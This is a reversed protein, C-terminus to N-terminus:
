EPAVKVCFARCNGSGEQRSEYGSMLYGKPCTTNAVKACGSDSSAGISIETGNSALALNSFRAETTNIQTQFDSTLSNIDKVAVTTAQDISKIYEQTLYTYLSKSCTFNNASFELTEDNGCTPITACEFIQDDFNVNKLYQNPACQNKVVNNGFWGECLGGPGPQFIRSKPHNWDYRITTTSNSRASDIRYNDPKGLSNEAFRLFQSHIANSPVAFLYNLKVARVDLGRNPGDSCYARVLVGSKNGFSSGYHSVIEAGELSYLSIYRPNGSCPDGQLMGRFTMGCDVADILHKGLLSFDSDDSLKKALKNAHSVSNMVGLTIGGGIVVAVLSELLSFGNQNNIFHAM